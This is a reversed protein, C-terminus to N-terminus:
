GVRESTAEVTEARQATKGAELQEDAEAAGPDTSPPSAAQAEEALEALKKQHDPAVLGASIVLKAADEVSMDLITVESRPVFLLFGSTPNPTTPLFVSYTENGDALLRRNVEGRTETAIFVIAWLGKRPYELLGVESFSGSQDSLVTQFIQKLGSYINRILPMRSLFREGLNVISRGIFNATLFGIMTIIMVALLVGIGPIAFPLYTEPNYVRPIYPIVWGDVWGVFTWILYVTITLPAVVIFGTLFYNRLRTLARHEHQPEM